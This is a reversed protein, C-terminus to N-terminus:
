SYKYNEGIDTRKKRHCTLRELELMTRGHSSTLSAGISRSQTHPLKNDTYFSVKEPLVKKEM